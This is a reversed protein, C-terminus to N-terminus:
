PYGCEVPCGETCPRKPCQICRSAEAKAQELVIVWLLRTSIEQGTSQPRAKANASSELNLKAM